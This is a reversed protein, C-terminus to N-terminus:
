RVAELELLWGEVEDSLGDVALWPDDVDAAPGARVRDELHRLAPFELHDAQFLTLRDGQQRFIPTAGPLRHRSPELSSLELRTGDVGRRELVRAVVEVCFALAQQSSAQSDTLRMWNSRLGEISTGPIIAESLDNTSFPGPTRAERWARRVDTSGFSPAESPEISASSEPASAEATGEAISRAQLLLAGIGIGIGVGILAVGSRNRATM